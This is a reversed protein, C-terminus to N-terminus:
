AIKMGYLLQLLRDSKFVVQSHSFMPQVYLPQELQKMSFVFLIAQHLCPIKEIQVQYPPILNEGAPTPGKLWQFLGLKYKSINRLLKWVM